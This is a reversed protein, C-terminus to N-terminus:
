TPTADRIFSTTFESRAFKTALRPLGGGARGQKARRQRRGMQWRTVSARLGACVPAAPDGCVCVCVCVRAYVAIVHM